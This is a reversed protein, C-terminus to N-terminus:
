AEEPYYPKFVKSLVATSLYAAAAFYLALWLFSIKLFFDYGFLFLGLPFLWLAALAATRHLNRVSLLLANSLIESTSNRFQSAWPFAWVALFVALLCISLCPLFLYHLMGGAQFCRDFYVAAPVAALLFLLWLATSQRFNERFARFYSKAIPEERGRLMRFTLSYLATGAAGLTFVPLSTLLFLLNLVVLDAFRSVVHMFRSDPSLFSFM